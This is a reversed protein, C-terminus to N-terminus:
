QTLYLYMCLYLNKKNLIVIVRGHRRQVLIHLLSKRTRTLEYTARPRRANLHGRLIGFTNDMCVYICIETKLIVIVRDHTCQVLIHVGGVVRPGNMHQGKGRPTEHGRLTGLICAYM